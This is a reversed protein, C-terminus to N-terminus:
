AQAIPEHAITPVLRAVESDVLVAVGGVERDFREGRDELHVLLVPFEQGGRDAAHNAIGRLGDLLPGALVGGILPVVGIAVAHRLLRLDGEIFRANRVTPLWVGGGVEAAEHRSAVVLAAPDVAERHGVPVVRAARDVPRHWRALTKGRHRLPKIGAM